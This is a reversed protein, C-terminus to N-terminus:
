IYDALLAAKVGFDIDNKLFAAQALLHLAQTKDSAFVIKQIRTDNKISLIAEKSPLEILAAIEALHNGTLVKSKLISSPLGDFGIPLPREPQALEFLSEGSAKSYWFRGMRGVLNIRNPDIRRKDDTLVAENIHMRLVRCVVLVGSAGGNGLPLIQEVKCEMQVPSEAVRFPKVFDSAIPTLGAKKFEDTEPPYNVATLTMQRVIDHSVMNIVCEGTAEVNNLTDKRSADAARRSPSFVVMPPNASFANFFSYPALNPVGETDLTSVFAIPRPAVSGILFQYMDLPATKDPDIILM